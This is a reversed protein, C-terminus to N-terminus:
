FYLTIIILSLVNHMSPIKHQVIHGFFYTSTQICESSLEQSIQATRFVNHRLVPPETGTDSNEYNEESSTILNLKKALLHNLLGALPSNQFIKTTIEQM